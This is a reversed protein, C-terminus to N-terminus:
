AKRRRLGLLPILGCSLILLSTPEPVAQVVRFGILTGETTPGYYGSCASASLYSADNNGYSGGRLWPKTMGGQNWEWLNGSQDFTGFASASNEFEGVVTRYYPEGITYDDIMYNAQNGIDPDAIQNGPADNSRTAYDWYGPSGPKEPDYYAAKYWEDNSAVAWMWGANRTIPTEDTMVGNLDYAGTETNGSQLWNAFRCADWYGVYNVPRNAWDAAVSYIYSGSSGSQQINCGSWVAEGMKYNYLGYPNDAAVANLFETYQGATVEYKGVNYTYGVSGYGPSAYRADPSNGPDSVPVTPITVASCTIPLVFLVALISLVVVTRM